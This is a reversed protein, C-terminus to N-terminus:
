GTPFVRRVCQDELLSTSCDKAFMMKFCVQVAWAELDCTWSESPDVKMWPAMYLAATFCTVVVLFDGLMPMSGDSHPAKLDSRATLVSGM